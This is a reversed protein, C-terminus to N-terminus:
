DQQKIVSLFDLRCSDLTTKTKVSHTQHFPFLEKWEGNQLLPMTKLLLTAGVKVRLSFTSRERNQRWGLGTPLQFLFLSIVTM